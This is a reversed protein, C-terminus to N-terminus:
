GNFGDTNDTTVWPLTPMVIQYKLPNQLKDKETTIQEEHKAELTADTGLWALVDAEALTDFSVFTEPAVNSTDLQKIIESTKIVVKERTETSHIPEDLLNDNEDYNIEVAVDYSVTESSELQAVITKVIYELGNDARITELSTVKYEHTIAM